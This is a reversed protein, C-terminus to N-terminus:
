ALYGLQELRRQLEASEDADYDREDTSWASDPQSGSV